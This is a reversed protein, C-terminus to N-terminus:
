SGDGGEPGIRLSIPQFRRAGAPLPAAWCKEFDVNNRRLEARAADARHQAERILAQASAREVAAQEERVRAEGASAAVARRAAIEYRLAAANDGALAGNAYVASVAMVLGLALAAGGLGFAGWILGGPM